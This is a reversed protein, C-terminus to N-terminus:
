RRASPTARALEERVTQIIDDAHSDTKAFILTKPVEGAPFIQPCSTASPASSPASRTRTSSRATWSGQRQLSRGRGAAGLPPPPDATASEVVQKPRSSAGQRTIETEILLSTASTSAMPWRRSTTTNASWTRTFFGYTRNDPTATLGILYADFYDLVQKWLNYISRHCEDIIIFDFTEPPIKENYVSAATRQSPTQQVPQAVRRRRGRGAARGQAPHFVHAPHHQHLGPQGQRRLLIQAAARQLARHVQPQRRQATYAMFEQEAQEGLNKTDVLFLIRKADAFKLLRYVATIATFTKGAGTAMQVLARPRTKSSPPKWTTSPTSRATACGPRTWRRCTTCAPACAKRSPGAVRAANGPPPLQLDRPLPAPDRRRHLPHHRRHVRLPLPAAPQQQGMQTQGAAYGGTQEEVVCNKAIQYIDAGEMLRLCIYTHRLSYATRPQGRPRIEPGRTLSPM